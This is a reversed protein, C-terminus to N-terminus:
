IYHLLGSFKLREKPYRKQELSLTLSSLVIILQYSFFSDAGKGTDLPLIPALPRTTNKNKQNKKLPREPYCANACDFILVEFM